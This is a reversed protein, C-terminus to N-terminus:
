LYHDVLNTVVFGLLLLGIFCVADIISRYNIM